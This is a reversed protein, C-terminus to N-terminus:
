AAATSGAIWHVLLLLAGVFVATAILGAVIVHAPKLQEADHALGSSRRIGLFSWAVARLGHWLPAAGGPAAARERQGASM